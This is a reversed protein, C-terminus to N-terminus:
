SPGSGRRGPTPVGLARLRSALTTPPVGLLAAAGGPGYIRGGSRRLAAELNSREHQRWEGISLVPVELGDGTPGTAGRQRLRARLATNERELVARNREVREVARGRVVAAAAHDALVRLWRFDSADIRSRRFVAVVGLVAPGAVLPQAAFSRVGERAAWDPRAIWTSRESMDHLLMATRSAGVRGVKGVGLPLRRFAGGIGSWDEAGHRPNGASAVLHLCQIREPCEQRMACSGCVDGPAVLWLRALATDGDGALARVATAVAAEVRIEGALALAGAEVVAGLM